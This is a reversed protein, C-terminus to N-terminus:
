TGTFRTGRLASALTQRVGADVELRSRLTASRRLLLRRSREIMGDLQDRRHFARRGRLYTRHPRPPPEFTIVPAPTPVFGKRNTKFEV